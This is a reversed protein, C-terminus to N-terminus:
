DMGDEEGEKVLWYKGTEKGTIIVIKGDEGQVVKCVMREMLPTYNAIANMTYLVTQSKAKLTNGYDQITTYYGRTKPIDGAIFEKHEARYQRWKTPADWAQRLNKVARERLRLLRKFVEDEVKEGDTLLDGARGVWLFGSGNETGVKVTEEPHRELYETLTMAKDESTPLPM